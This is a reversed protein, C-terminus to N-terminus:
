GPTLSGPGEEGQWPKHLVGPADTLVALLRRTHRAHAAVAETVDVLDAVVDAAEQRPCAAVHRSIEALRTHLTSTEVLDLYLVGGLTCLVEEALEEHLM